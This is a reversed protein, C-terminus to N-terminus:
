EREHKALAGEIRALSISIDNLKNSLNDFKGDTKIADNVVKSELANIRQGQFSNRAELRVLWIVFVIAATFVPWLQSVTEATM